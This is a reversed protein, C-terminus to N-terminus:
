RGAPVALLRLDVKAPEVPQYLALTSSAVIDAWYDGSQEFRFYVLGPRVPIAGPPRYEVALRVGPMAANMIYGVQQWSGIKMLPPLRERLAAEDLGRAELFLEHTRPLRPDDFKGIYMGDERKELPVVVLNDAVVAALMALLREFLPEFVDGLELYNFKPLATPDADALFTGLAGALESLTLFAQEATASGHDVYHAIVPIASNLTHLLWFKAADSAQFDVSAASRLRRSEALSKQKGVLASLLRGLGAMLVESAGIRLVPPIFSRRLVVAGTRDRVLQAVRLTQYADRPETGFLLRLNSRAWTVSSESRGSNLDAVGATQLRSQLLAEHYRDSQQFHQPSVFLGETWVPKRPHSM